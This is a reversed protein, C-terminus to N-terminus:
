ADCALLDISPLSVNKGGLEAALRTDYFTLTFSPAHGTGTQLWNGPEPRRGALIEIGGSPGFLAEFSNLGPTRPEAHLTWARVAPLKGAIRYRCVGLLPKGSSDRLATFAIGESRGLALIEALALRARSYPDSHVLGADPQAVWPGISLVDFDQRQLVYWVSGAGLVIAVVLCWLTLLASRLMASSRRIRPTARPMHLTEDQLSSM